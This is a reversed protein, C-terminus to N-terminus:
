LGGRIMRKRACIEISRLRDKYMNNQYEREPSLAHDSNGEWRRCTYLVDYIRGIRWTRTFRLATAYDEGYSVDPMPHLRLLPTYFARPAGMGNIRLLNNRGNTDTWERHDIVGPPLPNLDFDTLAYSGVVMACKQRRFCGVIRSVTDAGSYLDDSDLQVAFRGCQPSAVALNWCGGIGLDTREPIIHVVRPNDDYRSRLLETTGDTSHNDVVIVNTDFDARQSLASDVADAITRVRDRVPIIVSAECPFAGAADDFDVELPTATLLAGDSRLFETFAREMEIQANRNARDVYSFQAEGGQTGPIPGAPLLSSLVEPIHEPFGFRRMSLIFAYFAAHEYTRGDIGAALRALATKVLIVPGFDFDDRVSGVSYPLTRIVAGDARRYDAYVIPAGVAEAVEIMRRLSSRPLDVPADTLQLLIYDSPETRVAEMKSTSFPPAIIIHRCTSM